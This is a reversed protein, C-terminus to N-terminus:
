GHTTARTIPSVPQMTTQRLTEDRPGCARQRGSDLVLVRDCARLVSPRHAMVIVTKKKKTLHQVLEIVAQEGEADLHSNPEDLVIVAPDGFVARALGIRQRQGGSLATGDGGIMTDYGNELSVIVDHARAMRAAEAIEHDSVDSRLRAINEAVTASVLSVEQPLYGVHRGLIEPDWQTHDAGDLTLTGHISPWVGVLAKALASKGCGSPGIVALAQGPEVTFTLGRVLVRVKERESGPHAVAFGEAKIIGKPKPLETRAKQEGHETMMISVNQWAAHARQYTRWQAITQDIPALARAAMISAAIIMGPTILGDIALWAGWALMASQLLFRLAKSAASFAGTRDSGEIQADIGAERSTEWREAIAGRM